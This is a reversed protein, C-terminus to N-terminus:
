VSTEPEKPPSTEQLPSSAVSGLGSMHRDFIEKLGQLEALTPAPKGKELLRQKVMLLFARRRVPPMQTLEERSYVKQMAASMADSLETENQM